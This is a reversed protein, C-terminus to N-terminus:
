QNLEPDQDLPNVENTSGEDESSTRRTKRPQQSNIASKGICYGSATVRKQYVLYLFYNIDEDKTLIGTVKGGPCQRQLDSVMEDVFDNDFSLGLVIVKSREVKLPSTREAPISTVSVSNISACGGLILSQLLVLFLFYKM